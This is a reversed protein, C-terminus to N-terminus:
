KPIEIAFLAYNLFMSISLSKLCIAAKYKLNTKLSLLCCELSHLTEEEERGGRKGCPSRRRRWFRGREFTAIHAYIHGYYMCQYSQLFQTFIGKVFLQLHPQFTLWFWFSNCVLWSLSIRAGPTEFFNSVSAQPIHQM